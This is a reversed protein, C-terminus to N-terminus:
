SSNEIGEGQNSRGDAQELPHSLSDTDSNSAGYTAKSDSNLKTSENSSEPPPGLVIPADKDLKPQETVVHEPSGSEPSSFEDQMYVFIISMINEYFCCLILQYSKWVSYHKDRLAKGCFFFIKELHNVVLIENM